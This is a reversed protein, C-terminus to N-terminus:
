NEQLKCSLETRNSQLKHKVLTFAPKCPVHMEQPVNTNHRHRHGIQTKHVLKLSIYRKM